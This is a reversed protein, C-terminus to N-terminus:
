EYRLAHIPSRRAIQSTSGAVTIWMFLLSIVGTALCLPLLWLSDIRNSFSELWRIMIWVTIPWAILNAVLVPKSFQWVLLRVIDGIKAGMVKRLGIEKTRQEVTFASMGLLGLCAVIVTLMSFGALVNRQTEVDSFQSNVIQDVFETSLAVDDIFFPWIETVASLLQQPEGEFRVTLNTRLISDFYFIEPSIEGRATRFRSNAVVGIITLDFIGPGRGIGYSTRIHRGLADNPSSFGLVQVAAESIIVNAELVLGSESDLSRPIQDRQYSEDYNRGAVIPMRYTDFFESDISNAGLTIPTSEVLSSDGSPLVTVISRFNSGTGPRFLSFGSSVVGDIRNIEQKLLERRDVDIRYTNEILLLNDPNFGLNTSTAFRSQLFIATTAIILSVSVVFQFVVLANRAYFGGRSNLSQSNNLSRSPRFGSLVLAPYFGGAVGVLFVMGLLLLYTLPSAYNVSLETGSFLAFLPMTLELLVLGVVVAILTILVAESLFQLILAKRRAGMVKRVAVEKNRRTSKAVTLVIFNICAITLVLVAIFSFILNTTKSGANIADSESWPNLYIDTIAQLEYELVEAPSFSGDNTFSDPFKAHLNILDPFNAAFSEKDIDAELGIFTQVIPSSWSYMSSLAMEDIPAIAPLSLVTNESAPKYVASVLYDRAPMPFKAPVQILEGIADSGGFFRTAVDESLAINNLTAFVDDFSGTVLDLEFLDVFGKDVMMISEQYVSDNVVIDALDLEWMRAGTELEAPFYNQLAPLLQTATLTSRSPPSGPLRTQANIRYIQDANKWHKDYSLESLVYLAILICASLGVALGLINIASYLKNKLLINWATTLYNKFMHRFRNM